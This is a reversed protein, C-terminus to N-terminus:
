RETGVMYQQMEFEAELQDLQESSFVTRVRKCRSKKLHGVTVDRDLQLAMDRELQLTRYPYLLRPSTDEDHIYQLRSVDPEEKFSRSPESMFANTTPQLVDLNLMEKELSQSTLM